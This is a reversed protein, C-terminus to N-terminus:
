PGSYFAPKETGYLGRVLIKRPRLTLSKGFLITLGLCAKFKDMLLLEIKFIPLTIKM